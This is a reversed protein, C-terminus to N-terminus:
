SNSLSCCKRQKESRSCLTQWEAGAATLNQSMVSVCCRAQRQRLLPVFISFFFFFFFFLAIQSSHSCGWFECWCATSMLPHTVRWLKPASHYGWEGETWPRTQRPGPYLSCQWVQELHDSPDPRNMIKYFILLTVAINQFWNQNRGSFQLSIIRERPTLSSELLLTRFWNCSGSPSKLSIRLCWQLLRALQLSICPLKELDQQSM